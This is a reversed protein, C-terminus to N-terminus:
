GRATSDGATNLAAIAEQGQMVPQTEFSAAIPSKVRSPQPPLPPRAALKTLEDVFAQFSIM